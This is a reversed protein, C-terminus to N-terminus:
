SGIVFVTLIHHPSLLLQFVFFIHTNWSIFAIAGFVSLNNHLLLFTSLFTHPNSNYCWYCNCHIFHIILIFRFPNSNRTYFHNNKCNNISIQISQPSAFFFFFLVFRLLEFSMLFMSSRMKSPADYFVVNRSYILNLTLCVDSWIVM